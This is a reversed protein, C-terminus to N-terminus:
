ILRYYKDNKELGRLNVEIRYIEKMLPIYFTFPNIYLSMGIMGTNFYNVFIKQPHKRFANFHLYVHEYKEYHEKEENFDFEEEQIGRYFGLAAWSIIATYILRNRIIKNM